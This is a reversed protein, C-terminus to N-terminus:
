VPLGMQRLRAILNRAASWRGKKEFRRVLAKGLLLFVDPLLSFDDALADRLNSWARGADQYDPMLYIRAAYISARARAQKETMLGRQAADLLIGRAEDIFDAAQALSKAEPHIRCYALLDPIYYLPLREALAIWLDLDMTFHLAPDVGGVERVYATPAFVAPQALTYKGYYLLHKLTMDPLLASTYNLEKSQGDIDKALGYLLVPHDLEQWIAAAKRLAGEAYVDDSNLWAFIEGRCRSLGKNIADSQGEDPESIWHFRPDNEYERLIELTEDSSGGDIVWHEINPYDQSLVSEITEQIFRGQNFSPTVISFLPAAPDHM